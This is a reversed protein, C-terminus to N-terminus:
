GEIKLGVHLEVEDDCSQKADGVGFPALLIETVTAFLVLLALPFATHSSV